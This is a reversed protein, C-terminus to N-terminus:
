NSRNTAIVPGEEGDGANSKIEYTTGSVTYTFPDGWADPKLKLVYPGRWGKVGPDQVLADLNPPMRSVDLYYSNVATSLQGILSETATRRAKDSTGVIDLNNLAVLAIVGLITIVLMIELLTFGKQRRHPKHDKKM